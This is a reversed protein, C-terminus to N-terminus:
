VKTHGSALPAVQLIARLDNLVVQSTGLPDRAVTASQKQLDSFKIWKRDMMADMDGLQFGLQSLQSWKHSKLVWSRWLSRWVCESRSDDKSEIDDDVMYPFVGARRWSTAIRALSKGVHDFYKTVVEDAILEEGHVLLEKFAEYCKEGSDQLAMKSSAETEQDKLRLFEADQEARETLRTGLEKAFVSVDPLLYMDFPANEGLEEIPERPRVLIAQCLKSLHVWEEEAEETSFANRSLVEDVIRVRFALAKDGAAKIRYERVLKVMNKVMCFQSVSYWVNGKHWLSRMDKEQAKLCVMDGVYISAVISESEAIPRGRSNLRYMVAYQKSLEEQFEVSSSSVAPNNLISSWLILQRERISRALTVEGALELHRARLKENSHMRKFKNMERVMLEEDTESLHDSLWRLGPAFKRWQDSCISRVHIGLQNRDRLRSVWQVVTTSSSTEKGMALSSGLIVKVLLTPVPYAYLITGTTRPIRQFACQIQVISSKEQNGAAVVALDGTKRDLQVALGEPSLRGGPRAVPDRLLLLMCGEAFRVGEQTPELYMGDKSAQLSCRVYGLVPKCLVRTIGDVTWDSWARVLSRSQAHHLAHLARGTLLWEDMGTTDLYGAATEVIGCPSVICRREFDLTRLAQEVRQEVKVAGEWALFDRKALLSREHGASEEAALRTNIYELEKATSQVIRWPNQPDQARSARLVSQGSKMKLAQVLPAPASVSVRQAAHMYNTEDSQMQGNGVYRLPLARDPAFTAAVNSPAGAPRPFPAKRLDGEHGKDRLQLLTRSNVQTKEKLLKWKEYDRAADAKRSNIRRAVEAKKIEHDEKAWAQLRELADQVSDPVAITDEAFEADQMLKAWTDRCVRKFLANQLKTETSLPVDPVIHARAFDGSQEVRSQKLIRRECQRHTFILGDFEVDDENGEAFSDNLSTSDLINLKRALAASTRVNRLEKNSAITWDIWAKELAPVPAARTKNNEGVIHEFRKGELQIRCLCLGVEHWTVDNHARSRFDLPKLHLEAVKQTWQPTIIEAPSPARVAKGLRESEYGEYLGLLLKKAREINGNYEAYKISINSQSNQFARKKQRMSHKMAILFETRQRKAEELEEMAESIAGVELKEKGGSTFHQKRPTARLQSPSRKGGAGSNWGRELEKERTLREMKKTHAAAARMDQQLAIRTEQIEEKIAELEDLPMVGVGIDQLSDPLRLPKMIDSESPLPLEVLRKQLNEMAEQHQQMLKQQFIRQEQIEKQLTQAMIEQRMQSRSAALDEAQRRREDIIRAEQAKRERQMRVLDRQQDERLKTLEQRLGTILAPDEKSRTEKTPRSRHRNHSANVLLHLQSLDVHTDIDGNEFEVELTKDSNVANVVGKALSSFDLNEADPALNVLVNEADLAEEVSKVPRLTMVPVPVGHNSGTGIWATKKKPPSKNSKRTSTSQQKKSAVATLKITEHIVTKSKAQKPQSDKVRETTSPKANKNKATVVASTNAKAISKTKVDVLDQNDQPSIKKSVINESLVTPQNFTLSLVDIKRIQIFELQCDEELDGDDYAIYFSGDQNVQQVQGTYFDEPNPFTSGRNFNVRVHCKESLRLHEIDKAWVYEITDHSSVPDLVCESKGDNVDETKGLSSSSDKPKEVSSAPNKRPSLSEEVVVKIHDIKCDKEFDGDDYVIAFTEDTNIAQIKGPYFDGARPRNSERNFNVKVKLGKQLVDKPVDKAWVFTPETEKAGAAAGEETFQGQHTAGGDSQTTAVADPSVPNVCDGPGSVDEERWEWELKTGNTAEQLQYHPDPVGYGDCGDKNFDFIQRWHNDRPDLRAKAFHEQLGRYAGNFPRFILDTSTEIVPDVNSFLNFTCNSCDRLRLQRCAITFECDQCDRIFISSECPGIFVKSKTIKDVQVQSSWCLVRVTCDHITHLDFPQGDISGPEKLLTSHDGSCSKFCFFKEYLYRKYSKQDTFVTGDPATMSSAATGSTALSSPETGRSEGSNGHASGQSVIEIICSKPVSNVSEGDDFVIKFSGDKINLRKITGQYASKWSPLQALVIDGPKPDLVKAPLAEDVLLTKMAETSNNVKSLKSEPITELVMKGSDLQISYELQESVSKVVGRQVAGINDSFEVRDGEKYQPIDKEDNLFALLDDDNAIDTARRPSLEDVIDSLALSEVVEGDDFQVHLTGDRNKSHITGSYPQKWTKLRARIREGPAFPDAVENASKFVEVIEETKVREQVEGDDFVVRYFVDSGSKIVDAVTGLYAEKWGQIRAKIKAGKALTVTPKLSLSVEPVQATTSNVPIAEINSLPIREHLEGDDFEVSYTNSAMDFDTVKGTYPQKWGNLQAQVRSGVEFTPKSLCREPQQNNPRVLIPDVAEQIEGDDFVIKYKGDLTVDEIRGSYEQKWGELKAFIPTGVALLSISTASEPKSELVVLDLSVNPHVEGDDFRIECIGKLPNIATIVGSYAKKWGPLQAKIRTGVDFINVKSKGISVSQKEIDANGTGEKQVLSPDVSEHVEGDDFNISYSGNHLVKNIVGPYAQKWGPLKALVRCGEPIAENSSSEETGTSEHHSLVEEVKNIDVGDQIEGDDFEVKLLGNADVATITGPYAQKWNQLKVCVRAGIKMSNKTSSVKERILAKQDNTVQEIDKEEVCDQVDGDDFSIKYSSGGDNISTIVGPYAENWGSIKARVKDGISFGSNKMLGEMMNHNGKIVTSNTDPGTPLVEEILAKSFQEKSKTPDEETSTPSSSSSNSSSDEEPSEVIEEIMCFPVSDQIEGDDFVVQYAGNADMSKISGPYAQKWGPMRVTVRSGLPILDDNSSNSSQSEQELVSEIEEAKVNNHFEGDDFRVKFSKGDQNLSEIRGTYAKKWGQVKASIRTGVSYQNQQSQSQPKATGQGLVKVIESRQVDGLVEGDDFTVEFVKEPEVVSTIKGWYPKKWGAVKAEVRTGLSLQNGLPSNPPDDDETQEEQVEVIEDQTVHDNIEGDDFTVQWTGDPNVKTVKGPYAKKWGTIKATVCSGVSLHYSSAEQPTSVGRKQKPSSINQVTDHICDCPVAEEEEGDEFVIHYTGDKLGPGQVYGPYSQKWGPLQAVVHQKPYFKPQQAHSQKTDIAQIAGKDVNEQVEGDDFHVTYKEGQVAAIKGPYAQKWGEIKALVAQGEKFKSLSDALSAKAAPSVSLIETRQVDDIIEGDDFTVEFLEGEEVVRTVIGSYPKKWGAVLAEVRDGEHVDEQQGTNTPSSSSKSTSSIVQTIESFHVEDVVEGDDFVICCTRMSKDVSKVTGRYSKKWGAIKALVVDGTKVNQCEGGGTPSRGMESRLAEMKSLVDAAAFM